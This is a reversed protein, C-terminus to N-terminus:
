RWFVIRHPAPPSDGPKSHQSRQRQVTLEHRGPALQRIPIMAVAGRLGSVPDDAADFHLGQLAVGDLQPAYVRALCDLAGARLRAKHM